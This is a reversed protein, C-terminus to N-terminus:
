FTCVELQSICLGQAQIYLMTVATLVTSHIHLNSLSYVKMTRM